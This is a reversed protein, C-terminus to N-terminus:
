KTQGHSIAHLSNNWEPFLFFLFCFFDKSTGQTALGKLGDKMKHREPGVM